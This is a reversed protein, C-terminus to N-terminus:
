GVQQAIELALDVRNTIVSSIGMEMFGKMHNPDDVTWANCGLGAATIEAFTEPLFSSYIANIFDAGVSKGYAGPNVIWSSTLLGVPISPILEKCLKMSYHNFSSFQIRDELGFELVMDVVKKEMGEFRFVSNKLEINTFQKKDKMFTFYERLTPIAQTEFEGPKFKGHADFRRLEELTYDRVLGTGNTTRDIKEDHIVVIENDRTLQVDLEIGDCGAEVAKAFALMTNEPYSYSFGRHAVIKTNM